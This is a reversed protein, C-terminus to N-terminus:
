SRLAVVAFVGLSALVFTTALQPSSPELGHAYRVFHECNWSLLSYKKGICRRARYLVEQVHLNGLYGESVIENGQSFEEETEERVEGARGSCSIIMLRGDSSARDSVVGKHKFIGYAPTSVVTGPSLQTPRHRAPVQYLM